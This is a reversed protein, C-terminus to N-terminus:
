GVKRKFDGIRNGNIDYVAGEDIGADVKQAIERLIRAIEPTPDDDFAANDTKFSLTFM